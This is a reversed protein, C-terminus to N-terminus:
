VRKYNNGILTKKQLVTLRLLIKLSSPYFIILPYYKFSKILWQMSKGKRGLKLELHSRRQLSFAYFLNAKLQHILRQFVSLSNSYSLLVEKIEHSFVVNQLCTKSDDHLRLQSFTKNISVLQTKLSFRLWLDLDMAYSLSIDLKGAQRWLSQSFFVSPQPLYQNDYYKLLDYFSYNQPNIHYTIHKQNSTETFFHGDGSYFNIESNSKFLTAVEQFVDNCLVDDSNIWYFIEGQAKEFGKNIADSQGRDKESIWYSLWTEYKKIVEVSHDKSAGDIIIYELNQYGQLLVSRITEEIFQSYNYNPTVISILPWESGDPMLEPLQLSEETWPWGTKQPPSAPLDSLAPCRM